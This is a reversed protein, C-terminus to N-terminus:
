GFFNRQKNVEDCWAYPVFTVVQTGQLVAYGDRGEFTVPVYDGGPTRVLRSKDLAGQIRPKLVSLLRGDGLGVAEQWHDRFRKLAHETIYLGKVGSDETPQVQVRIRM